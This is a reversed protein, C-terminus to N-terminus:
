QKLRAFFVKEPWLFTQKGFGGTIPHSSYMTLFENSKAAIVFGCHGYAHGGFTNWFQVLDGERVDNEDVAVGIGADVLATQVGKIISAENRVLSDLDDNTIIRIGKKTKAPLTVIKELVNIVFETCVVQSYSPAIDQGQREIIKLLLANKPLKAQPRLSVNKKPITLPLVPQTNFWLVIISAILIPVGLFLYRSIRNISERLM